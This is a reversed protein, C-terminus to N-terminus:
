NEARYLTRAEINLTYYIQSANAGKWKGSYDPANVIIEIDSAIKECRNLCAMMRCGSDLCSSSYISEKLEDTFKSCASEFAIKAEAQVDRAPASKNNGM